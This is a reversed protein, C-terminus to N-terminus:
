SDIVMDEDWIFESEIEAKPVDWNFLEKSEGGEDDSYDQDGPVTAVSGTIDRTVPQSEKMDWETGRKKGSLEEYVTRRIIESEFRRRLAPNDLGRNITVNPKLALGKICWIGSVRMKSSDPMLTDILSSLVRLRIGFHTAMALTVEYSMWKFTIDEMDVNGDADITGFTRIQDDTLVSVRDWFEHERGLFLTSVLIPITIPDKDYCNFIYIALLCLINTFQDSRCKDPLPDRDPHKFSPITRVRKIVYDVCWIPMMRYIPLNNMGALGATKTYFLQGNKGPIPDKSFLLKIVFLDFPEPEGDGFMILRNGILSTTPITKDKKLVLTDFSMGKKSASDFCGQLINLLTTKGSDSPGYLIVLAPSRTKSCLAQGINWLLSHTGSGVVSWILKFPDTSLLERGIPKAPIATLRIPDTCYSEVSDNGDTEIVIEKLMMRKGDESESMIVAYRRGMTCVCQPFLEAPWMLSNLRDVLPQTTRFFNVDGMYGFLDALFKRTEMKDVRKWGIYNSVRIMLDGDIKAVMKKDRM